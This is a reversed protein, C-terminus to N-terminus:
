HINKFPYDARWISDLQRKILSKLPKHARSMTAGEDCRLSGRGSPIDLCCCWGEGATVANCRQREM